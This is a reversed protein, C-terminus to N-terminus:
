VNILAYIVHRSNGGQNKGKGLRFREKDNEEVVPYTNFIEFKSFIITQLIREKNNLSHLADLFHFFIKFENESSPTILVNEIDKNQQQARQQRRRLM